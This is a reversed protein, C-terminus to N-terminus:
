LRQARPVRHAFAHDDTQAELEMWHHERSAM